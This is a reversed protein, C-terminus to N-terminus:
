KMNRLATIADRIDECAGHTCNETKLYESCVRTLLQKVAQEKTEKIGQERGAVYGRDWEPGLWTM